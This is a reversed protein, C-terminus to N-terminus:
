LRSEQVKNLRRWEGGAKIEKQRGSKGREQLDLVEKRTSPPLPLLGARGAARGEPTAHGRTFMVWLLGTGPRRAAAARGPWSSAQQWPRTERRAPPAAGSGSVIATGPADSGAVAAGPLLAPSSSWGHACARSLSCGPRSFSPLDARTNSVHWLLEASEAGPGHRPTPARVDLIVSM